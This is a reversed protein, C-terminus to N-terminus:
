SLYHGETQALCGRHRDGVSVTPHHAAGTACMGAAAGECLQKLAARSCPSISFMAAAHSGVARRLDLSCLNSRIRGVACLFSAVHSGPLRWATM